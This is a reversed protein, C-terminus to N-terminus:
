LSAFGKRWQIIAHALTGRDSAQVFVEPSGGPLTASLRSTSTLASVSPVGDVTVTRARTDVHVVQGPGLPYRLALAWGPGDLRMGSTPVAPDGVFDVEFPGGVGADLFGPRHGAEGTAVWPLVGPLTWAATPPSSTELMVSSVAADYVTPESLQFQAVVERYTNDWVDQPQIQFRRPRGYVIHETGNVGYTLTDVAGPTSRTVDSRWAAALEELRAYVNGANRVLVKFTWAPASLYDRGMMTWDGVPSEVDQARVDAGAQEFGGVVTVIERHSQGFTVGNLRCDVEGLIGYSELM